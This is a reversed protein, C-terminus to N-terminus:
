QTPSVDPSTEFNKVISDKSDLKVSYYAYQLFFFAIGLSIGLDVLLFVHQGSNFDDILRAGIFLTLLAFIIGVYFIKVYKLASPRNSWYFGSERTFPITGLGELYKKIESEMAGLYQYNRLVYTSRHYLNVMLYFVIALVVSQMLAFPFQQRLENIRTTDEQPINFMNALFDIFLYNAQAIKLTLLSTLGITIVLYLFTRNREKVMELTLEFTKQYHEILLEAMKFQHSDGNGM